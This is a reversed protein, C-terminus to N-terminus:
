RGQVAANGGRGADVQERGARSASATRLIEALELNKHQVAMDWPTRGNRDRADPDAGAALLLLIVRRYRDDARTDPQNFAAMHLPTLDPPCSPSGCAPAGGTPDAGKALLYEVAEPNGMM